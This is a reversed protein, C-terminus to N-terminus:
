YFQYTLDINNEILKSLIDFNGNSVAFAAATWGNLNVTNVEEKSEIAKIVGDLDNNKSSELLLSSVHEDIISHEQKTNTSAILDFSSILIILTLTVILFNLSMTRTQQMM